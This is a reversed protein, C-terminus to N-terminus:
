TLRLGYPSGCSPARPSYGGIPPFLAESATIAISHVSPYESPGVERSSIASTAPTSKALQQVHLRRGPPPRTAPSPPHDQARLRVGGPRVRGATRPSACRARRHRNVRAHPIRASTSFRRAGRSDDGPEEQGDRDRPQGGAPGRRVDGGVDAVLLHRDVSSSAATSSRSSPGPRRRRRRRGALGLEGAPHEVSSTCSSTWAAAASCSRRGLDVVVVHPRPDVLQEAVVVGVRDVALEGCCPM